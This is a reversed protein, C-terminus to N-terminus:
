KILKGPNMIRKTDLSKQLAAIMRIGLDGKEEPLYAAHDIGIGHQHSITGGMEQIAQSAREKMAGWRELIEDPDERRTFLFTVYVSAGDPYVHSIHSFPLVKFGGLMGARVIAEKITQGALEVKSWPLATELTDLAIGRDWLTNRLYPTRFRSKAWERGITEGTFLGGHRKILARINRGTTRVIRRDGTLGYILLCRGVGMKLMRLGRDAMGVLQEKGSLKLTIETEQADSLRLMSVPYARQAIERIASVGVEWNPFFVGFFRDVEPLPQVRVTAKTIIGLRGESGLFVHRLDPGAASAPLVPLDITGRPTEVEGGAFLEEIRGYHYSQQGTSRTAIWGGLTSREFSQPYHGLTYGTKALAAELAPGTIGAEFTALRSTEDLEILRALNSMNITLVPWKGKLPTVHGVVSTGGGYPIVVISKKRAYTILDSVSTADEPFAVGDPFTDIRGYRLVVWDPLSQGRAHLLRTRTDTAVDPAKKLRTDPVSALVDELQADPFSKPVGLRPELYTLASEPLHYHIEEDGWGNWRRM